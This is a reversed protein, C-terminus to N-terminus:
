YGPNQKLNKNQDIASQPIPFLYNAAANFKRNGGPTTVPTYVLVGSGNALIAM